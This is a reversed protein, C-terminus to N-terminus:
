LRAVGAAMAEAAPARVVPGDPVGLVERKVDSAYSVVGGRFWRSAGAVDTLRAGLLGGTLSEAVALSRGADLLAGAVVAEMTED